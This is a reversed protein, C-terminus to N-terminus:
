LIKKFFVKQYNTLKIESNDFNNNSIYIFSSFKEYLNFLYEIMKLAM